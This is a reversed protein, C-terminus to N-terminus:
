DRTKFNTTLPLESTTKWFSNANISLIYERNNELRDITETLKKPMDMYYYGSWISIKRVVQHDDASTITIDYSNIREKDIRAQDFTFTVSDSTTELIEIKESTTFYPKSANLYREDTYIFSSPDWATEITWSNPFFQETIVDYPLIRVVGKEDAEVIHMQAAGERYYTYPPLPPPITGYIKDFEDLEFYFMTGTGVTTFHRQHINRPDNIPAHSHGSFNIIQPYNMQVATLDDNAWALSGYVTDRVHPHQFFFIPQKPKDTRAKELAELAFARKADDFHDGNTTSLSIFHFDNIVKHVDPKMKFIRAFKEHAAEEGESNYEHKAISLTIDTEPKICKQLSDCFAQMEKETGTNALDGVVFLADLKQYQHSNEAYEYALGLAKEFYDRQITHEDQYHIDSTVLFRVKPIFPNM